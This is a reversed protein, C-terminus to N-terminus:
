CVHSWSKNAAIAFITSESVAFKKAIEKKNYDKAILNKIIKVKRDTLKAKNNKVGKMSRNKNVMDLSNLAPTGLFLHAPNACAPNDCTHCVVFGDLKENVYFRYSCRHASFKRRKKPIGVYAHFDGYGDKDINGLWLWCEDSSGKIFKSEFKEQLNNFKSFRGSAKVFLPDGYKKYREWHKKCFGKGHHKNKCEAIICPPRIQGKPM